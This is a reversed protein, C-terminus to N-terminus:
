ICRDIEGHADREARDIFPHATLIPPQLTHKSVPFVTCLIFSLNSNAYNLVCRRKKLDAETYYAALFGKKEWVINRAM